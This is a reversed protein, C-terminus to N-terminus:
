EEQFMKFVGQLDIAVRGFSRNTLRLEKFEMCRASGIITGGRHIIGACIFLIKIPCLYYIDLM